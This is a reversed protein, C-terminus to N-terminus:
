LASVTKELKKDSKAVWLVAVILTIGEAATLALWLATQNIKAFVIILITNLIVSRLLSVVTAIASRKTSFLYTIFVTNQSALLFATSFLILGIHAQKIVGEDSSFLKSILGGGLAFVAYIVATVLISVIMGLRRYYYMNKYNKEGFSKGILPQVGQAVGMIGGNLLGTLYMVVSFAAVAKEGGGSLLAYNMCLATVPQSLQVIFEPLGRKIIKGVLKIDFRCRKIRLTGKKLIFHLLLLGFSLVQGLGSAIAAGKVGMKLPFVFLWDFFINSLAGIIMGWFALKPNGDVRVFATMLISLATAMQFICYYFIYDVVLPLLIENAGLAISIPRAFVLCVVTFIMGLVTGSIFANMFAENATEEDGRGLRIATVAVGGIGVTATLATLVTILPFAINIAALANDGVGKGVFIGDVVIYLFTVMMAGVSPIIYRFALRARSM